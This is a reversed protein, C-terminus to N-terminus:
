PAGGGTALQRNVRNRTVFAHRWEPALRASATALWQRGQQLCAASASAEGARSYAQSLTLFVEPLYAKAGLGQQEAHPQLERALALAAATAAAGPVEMWRALERWLLSHGIGNLGAATCAARARALRAISQQPEGHFSAEFDVALILPLERNATDLESFSAWLAEGSGGAALACRALLSVAQLRMSPPTEPALEGLLARAREPQGLHLWLTACALRAKAAVSAAAEPGALEVAQNLSAIAEDLRGLAAAAAGLVTHNLIVQTSNEALGVERQRGRARQAHTYTAPVDGASALLAALSGESAAAVARDGVREASSIEERQAAVADALRGASWHVFMLANAARLMHAPDASAQAAAYAQTASALAALPQQVQAQAIALQAQVEVAFQPQMRADDLGAMALEAAAQAQGLVLLAETRAVQCKLRQVTTAALTEVEPLAALVDAGGHRLLLGDLRAHLADFRADRDGAQAYCRAAREFLETQEALLGAQRAASAARQWANGAEGWRLGAEWHAALRAWDISGEAQLAAAWQRHLSQRLGLPAARLAAEHVMDHSFAEGRLVNNAELISWAERLALPPCGLLRAARDVSLDAGGVAAVLLLDRADAPLAALRADLLAQVSEPPQLAASSQLQTGSSVAHQLTALTYLLHGGAQRYLREAVAEDVLGPLALSALLGTLEQRSLPQLAIPVPRHSDSLWADLLAANHLGAWPRSAAGLRLTALRPSASLWRLAELSATDAYHLDDLLLGRLGQALNQALFGEVALRLVGAHAPASPAAGFASHLRALEARQAPELAPSHARDIQSLVRGLLAFASEQDGPRCREAVLGAQGQAYADLLRTKGLGAEGLLMFPQGRQWAASMEAWPARRGVLVPPRLLSVPVPRRAQEPAADATEITQFMQLTEASPQSGLEDRLLGHLRWFADQAAARDGRLYHLRMLRRWGQEGLPVWEVVRQALALAEFLRGQQELAQSRDALVQACAQAVQLRAQALWRDLADLDGLDQGALLGPSALLVDDPLAQPRAVDVFVSPGLAVTAGITFVLQGVAGNLRSARQRLSAAAREPSSEPWILECLALRPQPGDLALKALLSADKRTLRVAERGQTQWDPLGLLRVRVEPALQDASDASAPM